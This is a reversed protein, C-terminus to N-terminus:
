APSESLLHADRLRQAGGFEVVAERSSYAARFGLVRNAQAGDAVCLYQLFDCFSAPAEALQALWLTSAVSRTLLRPMPLASRGALRIVTHLPLVGEGTINFVGPADRIVALRFATVVDAEHVFQWLPDFGLVTPVFRHAFYRTIFSDVNPGLIPATRLVTAIRGKGPQGFRLAEREADIKDVFFPELRPPRLPHRESLFNPNTPHAGYLLTQSWTVVKRVNSRRCANFVHMSGVSELEHAWVSSHTPSPLFALHVVTDVGEAAFIETLREEANSQTLSVDYARSKQAATHPPKLDVCVIRRISDDQELMGVLNTGLFSSAGTVAVSQRAGAITALPALAHERSHSPTTEPSM